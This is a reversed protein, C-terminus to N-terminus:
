SHPYLSNFANGIIKFFANGSSVFDFIYKLKEASNKIFLASINYAHTNKNNNSITSIKSIKDAIINGMNEPRIFNYLSLSVSLERLLDQLQQGAEENYSIKSLEHLADRIMENIDTIHQEYIRNQSYIMQNYAPFHKVYEIDISHEFSRWDKALNPLAILSKFATINDLLRYRDPTELVSALEHCEDCLEAINKLIEFITSTILPDTPHLNTESCIQETLYSHLAHAFTPAAMHQGHTSLERIIQGLRVLPATTISTKAPANM